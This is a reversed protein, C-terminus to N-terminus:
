IKRQLDCDVLNDIGQTMPNPHQSLLKKIGSMREDSYTPAYSALFLLILRTHSYLRLFLSDNVSTPSQEACRKSFIGAIDDM